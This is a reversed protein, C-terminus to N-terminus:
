YQEVRKKAVLLFFCEKTSFTEEWLAQVRHIARNTVAKLRACMQDDQCLIEEEPVTVKLVINDFLRQCTEGVGFLLIGPQKDIAILWVSMCSLYAVCPPSGNSLWDVFNEISNRLRTSDDGFKLLWGQLAESNTGGPGSRGLFKRAVSEVAEETIDVPIFIPTEEYM